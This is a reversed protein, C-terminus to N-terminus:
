HNAQKCSLFCLRVTSLSMNSKFVLDGLLASYCTLISKLLVSSSLSVSAPPQGFRTHTRYVEDALHGTDGGVNKLYVWDIHEKGEPAPKGDIRAAVVVAKSDQKHTRIFDWKPSIGTKTIPNPVFYHDGLIAPITLGSEKKLATTPSVGLPTNNWHEYAIDPLDEFLDKGYLCSIDFIDAIAGM